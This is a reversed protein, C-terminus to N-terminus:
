RLGTICILYLNRNKQFNEEQINTPYKSMVELQYNIDELYALELVHLGTLTDFSWFDFQREM